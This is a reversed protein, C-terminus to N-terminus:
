MTDMNSSSTLEVMWADKSHVLFLKINAYTNEPLNRLVSMKSSMYPMVNLKRYVVIFFIFKIFLFFGLYSVFANHNNGSFAQIPRLLTQMQM